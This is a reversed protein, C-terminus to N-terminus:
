GAVLDYGRWERVTVEAFEGVPLEAPIFVTGDVEPADMESRAQGPADVLVKLKRGVQGQNREEALKELRLMAENWRKKRTMHHVQTGLKAARTGEERSYNFVSAREFRTEELFELLEQFDEETEGPFGVIFTTRLALDPIGARMRKILDRIYNGDTERKMAGLMRDSIHQLPMDVYRAVKPCEAITEILEDSWHAPHTYLLRIWFDGEIANLARLLTALSDGRTSDVPSRPNPRQGEWHDMGFYTTDQSILNLEKVGSRVLQEAEKVVSEVTRSRHKGRIKPIICFSCPHNCGEAIKIYATHQPTLRFRPTDFDPIYTPSATVFNESHPDADKAMLDRIMPAVSTIQDLGIFADVEPMLGPLEKSFRQSLCGAVIIKQRPRSTERDDVAGLITDVSEKKAQDIFSCTNIILVDALEPDPTMMMGAEQLHGIMIESDILNKACGLSVLGVTIKGDVPM